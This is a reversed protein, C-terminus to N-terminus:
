QAPIELVLLEPLPDILKRLREELVTLAQDKSGGWVGETGSTWAMWAGPSSDFYEDPHLKVYVHIHDTPRM